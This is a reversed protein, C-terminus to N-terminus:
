ACGKKVGRRMKGNAGASSVVISRNPVGGSYISSKKKGEEQAIKEDGFNKGGHWGALGTL